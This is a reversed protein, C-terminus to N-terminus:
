ISKGDCLIDCSYAACTSLATAPTHWLLLYLAAPDDGSINRVCRSIQVRVDQIGAIVPIDGNKHTGM